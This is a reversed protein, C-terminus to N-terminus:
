KGSERINQDSKICNHIYDVILLFHFSIGYVKIIQDNLQLLFFYFNPDEVVRLREIIKLIHSWVCNSSNSKGKCSTKM